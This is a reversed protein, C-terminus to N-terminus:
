RMIFFSATAEKKQERSQERSITLRDGSMRYSLAISVTRGKLTGFSPALAESCRVLGALMFLLQKETKAIRNRQKGARQKGAGQKGL